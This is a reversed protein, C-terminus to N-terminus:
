PWFETVNFIANCKLCTKYILKHNTYLFTCIDPYIALRTGISSQAKEHNLGILWFGSNYVWIGFLPFNGSNEMIIFLSFADRLWFQPGIPSFDVTHKPRLGETLETLLFPGKSISGCKISQAEFAERWWGALKRAQAQIGVESGEQNDWKIYNLFVEGKLIYLYLYLTIIM